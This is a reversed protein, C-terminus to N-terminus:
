LPLQMTCIDLRFHTVCYAQVIMHQLSQEGSARLYQNNKCILSHVFQLQCAHSNGSYAMRQRNQCDWLTGLGALDRLFTNVLLLQTCAEQKIKHHHSHHRAIRPRYICQIALLWLSASLVANPLPWTAQASLNQCHNSCTVSQRRTIRLCCLGM